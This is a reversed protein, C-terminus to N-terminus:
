SRPGGGAPPQTGGGGGGGGGGGSGGESAPANTSASDSAQEPQLTWPVLLQIPPPVPDSPRAAVQRITVGVALPLPSNTDVYDWTDVWNAGDYFEVELASVQHLLREEHAIQRVAALLNRDVKRILVGANQNTSLPDDAISYTVEQLDGWLANTTVPGTATTFRLYGPYRSDPARVSATLAAALRSGTVAAHRLDDRLVEAARSRLRTEQVRRTAEDRLRIGHAFVGYVAIL